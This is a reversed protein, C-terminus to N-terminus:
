QELRAKEEKIWNAYKQDQDSLPSPVEKAEVLGLKNLRGEVTQEQQKRNAEVQKLKQLLEAYELGSSVLRALANMYLQEKWPAQSNLQEKKDRFFYAENHLLRTEWGEDEKQGEIRERISRDLRLYACDKNGDPTTVKHNTITLIFKIENKPNFRNYAGQYGNIISTLIDKITSTDADFEEYDEPKPTPPFKEYEGVEEYTILNGRKGKPKDHISKNM